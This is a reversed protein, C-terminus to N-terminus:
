AFALFNGLFCRYHSGKDQETGSYIYIFVNTDVFARDASM